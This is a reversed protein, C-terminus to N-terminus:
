RGEMIDGITEYLDRTKSIERELDLGRYQVALKRCVKEFEDGLVSSVYGTGLSTGKM